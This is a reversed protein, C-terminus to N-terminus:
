PVEYDVDMHDRELDAMRPKTYLRLLHQRFEDNGKNRRSQFDDYNSHRDNEGSLMVDKYDPDAEM